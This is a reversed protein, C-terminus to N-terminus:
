GVFTVTVTGDEAVAVAIKESGEEAVRCTVNEQSVAPVAGSGFLLGIRYDSSPYCEESILLAGSVTVNELTAGDSLTGALLGFTAGQMRSGAGVTYSVNEFNVDSIRASADITGFLGGTTKSADGQVVTVNRITHGNGVITGTFRGTTFVPAWVTDSFDLDACLIYNGGLRSNQFLQKATHIKFWEGDIWRTYVKVSETSTTGTEYDVFSEGRIAETMPVTGSEDLYVADLTMGDRDPFRKLDLKGTSESWAPAELDIGSVSGIREGADTLFEYEFYPIWAAYLTLVPTESSGEREASIKLTDNEFDWRDAYTYGQPRGSVATPVGFEDLPTGEANVRPTREAYWGALFYSTRSISFAGEKRLPDDPTLLPFEFEGNANPTMGAPSFVDVVTVNNTGAFVGGNADYRVSVTFGEEDLSPYPTGWNGGCATLLVAASLALILVLLSRITLKM